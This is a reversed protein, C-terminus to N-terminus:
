LCSFKMKRLIKSKNSSRLDSWKKSSFSPPGHVHQSTEMEKLLNQIKTRCEELHQKIAGGVYGGGGPYCTKRWPSSVAVRLSDFCECDYAGSGLLWVWCWRLKVDALDWVLEMWFILQHWSMLAGLGSIWYYVEEVDVVVVPYVM